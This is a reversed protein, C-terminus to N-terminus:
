KTKRYYKLVVDNNNIERNGLGIYDMGSKEMVRQSSKNEVYCEGIIKYAKMKNFMYEIIKKTAETAYGKNWFKSGLMYELSYKGEVNTFKRVGIQGIIEGTEKLVIVWTYVHEKDEILKSVVQQTQKLNEPMTLSEQYKYILKDSYLNKYLELSDNKAMPRLILRGTEIKDM